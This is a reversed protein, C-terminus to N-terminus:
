RHRLGSAAEFWYLREPDVALHMPTGTSLRVDKGAKVALMRGDILATAMTCDGLLEFTYVETSFASEDASCLRLDECRVGL